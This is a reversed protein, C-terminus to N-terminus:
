NVSLIFAVASSLKEGQPQELFVPDCAFARCCEVKHCGLRSLRSYKSGVACCATPSIYGCSLLLLKFFHWMVGVMQMQQQLWALCTTNVAPVQMLYVRTSKQQFPDVLM